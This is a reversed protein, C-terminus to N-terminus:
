HADQDPNFCPGCSCEILQDKVISRIQSLRPLFESFSFVGSSCIRTTRHDSPILKLSTALGDIAAPYVLLVWDFSSEEKFLSRFFTIALLLIIFELPTKMM